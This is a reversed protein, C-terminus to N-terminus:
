KNPILVIFVSVCEQLERSFWVRYWALGFHAFHMGQPVYRVLHSIYPLVGGGGPVLVSSRIFLCKSKNRM